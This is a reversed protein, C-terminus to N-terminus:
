LRDPLDTIIGDIDTKKLRRIDREANVTYSFVRLGRKHVGKVLRKTVLKTPLHLSYLHVRKLFGNFRWARVKILLGLRINPNLAHLRSLERRFFSSVLIDEERWGGKRVAMDLIFAVPKATGKAKLEINVKVKGRLFELTEKLTPIQEELGANLSKLRKLKIQAVKGTGDTTRDVTEDHLVVVEGSKCLRVDMEVMDCGLEIARAFSRLTNEPEYGAAGRHGIKLMTRM